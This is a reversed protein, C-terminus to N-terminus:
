NDRLACALTCASEVREIHVQRARHGDSRGKSSESSHTERNRRDSRHTFVRAADQHSDFDVHMSLGRAYQMEGTVLYSRGTLSAHQAMVAARIIARNGQM